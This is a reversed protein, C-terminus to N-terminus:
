REERAFLAEIARRPLKGNAERPLAECVKIRRPMAVPALWQRLEDRVSRPDVDGAIAVWVEYGRPEGVDVAIAAADRVGRIAFLRQEIEAISVRVGGITIRVLLRM